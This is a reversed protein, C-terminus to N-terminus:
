PEGGIAPTDTAFKYSASVQELENKFVVDSDVKALWLREAKELREYLDARGEDALLQKFAETAERLDHSSQSPQSRGLFSQIINKAGVVTGSALAATTIPPPLGMGAALMDVALYAAGYSVLFAGIDGKEAPLKSMVTTVPDGTAPPPNQSPEAM